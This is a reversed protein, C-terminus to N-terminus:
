RHTPDCSVAMAALKSQRLLRLSLMKYNNTALHRVSLLDPCLNLRFGGM